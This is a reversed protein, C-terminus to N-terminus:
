DLTNPSHSKTHYVIWYRQFNSDGLFFFAWIQPSFSRFGGNLTPCDRGGNLRHDTTPFLRSLESWRGVSTKSRVGLFIEQQEIAWELSVSLTVTDDMLIRIRGIQVPRNVAEFLWRDNAAEQNAFIGAM